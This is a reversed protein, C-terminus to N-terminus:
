GDDRNLGDRDCDDIMGYTCHQQLGFEDFDTVNRANSDIKIMKELLGKRFQYRRSMRRCFKKNTRVYTVIDM